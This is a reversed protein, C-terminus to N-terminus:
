LMNRKHDQNSSFTDDQICPTIVIDNYFFHNYGDRPVKFCYTFKHDRKDVIYKQENYEFTDFRNLEEVKM